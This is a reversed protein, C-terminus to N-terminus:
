ARHWPLPAVPIEYQSGLDQEPVLSEKREWRSAGLRRSESPCNLFSILEKMANVLFNTDIKACKAISTLVKEFFNM